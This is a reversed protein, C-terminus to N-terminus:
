PGFSFLSDGPLIPPTKSQAWSEQSVMAGPFFEKRLWNKQNANQNKWSAEMRDCFIKVLHKDTNAALQFTKMWRDLDATATGGKRTPLKPFPEAVSIANSLLEQAEEISVLYKSKLGQAFAVLFDTSPRLKKIQPM